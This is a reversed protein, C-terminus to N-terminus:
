NFYSLEKGKKRGPAKKRGRTRQYARVLQRTLDNGKKQVWKRWSNTREGKTGGQARM